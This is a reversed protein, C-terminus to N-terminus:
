STSFGYKAPFVMVIVNEDPFKKELKKKIYEKIEAIKGSGVPQDKEEKQEEKNKKTADPRVEEKLELLIRYRGEEDTGNPIERRAIKPKRGKGRQILYEKNNEKITKKKLETRRQANVFKKVAM